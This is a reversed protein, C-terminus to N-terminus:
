KEEKFKVAVNVRMLGPESDKGWWKLAEEKTAFVPIFSSPGGPEMHVKIGTSTELSDWKHLRMLAWGGGPGYDMEDNM